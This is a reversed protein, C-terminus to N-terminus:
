RGQRWRLQMVIFSVGAGILAAGVLWVWSSNDRQENEFRHETLRHGAALQLNDRLRERFTSPPVIPQLVRQVNAAVDTLQDKQQLSSSREM